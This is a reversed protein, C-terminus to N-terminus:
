WIPQEFSNLSVSYSTRSATGKNAVKKAAHLADRFNRKDVRIAALQKKLTQIRDLVTSERNALSEIKRNIQTVTM